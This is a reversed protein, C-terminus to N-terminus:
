RALRLLARLQALRALEEERDKPREIRAVNRETRAIARLIMAPTAMAWEIASRNEGVGM